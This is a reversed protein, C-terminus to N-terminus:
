HSIWLASRTVPPPRKIVPLSCESIYGVRFWVAETLQKLSLCKSHVSQKWCAMTNQVGNQNLKLLGLFKQLVLNRRKFVWCCCVPHGVDPHTHTHQLTAVSPTFCSIQQAQLSKMFIFFLCSLHETHSHSMQLSTTQFLRRKIFVAPSNSLNFCTRAIHWPWRKLKLITILTLQWQQRLM